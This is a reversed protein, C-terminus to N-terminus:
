NFTNTNQSAYAFLEEDSGERLLETENEVQQFNTGEENLATIDNRLSSNELFHIIETDPISPPVILQVTESAEYNRLWTYISGLCLLGVISAAILWRAPSISRLLGTKTKPTLPKTYLEHSEVQQERKNEYIMEQVHQLAKASEIINQPLDQFYNEPISYPTTKSTIADLNPELGAALDSVLPQLAKDFYNDPLSFPMTCPDSAAWSIGFSKLEEKIEKRNKM